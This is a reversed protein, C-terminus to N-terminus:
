NCSLFRLQLRSSHGALGGAGHYIYQGSLGAAPAPYLQDDHSDRRPLQQFEVIQNNWATGFHGYFHPYKEKLKPYGHTPLMEGHTYINIGKGASQILLQELDILDHGSIVIAKGKKAGLPVKTPVPHGYRSTNGADLLEMARLNMEGCKLVMGLMAELGLKKDMVAVLGKRSSVSLSQDDEQGLLQAHHTYASIGKLGFQLVHKLSLVDPEIGGTDSKLGVESGQKILDDLGSAPRFTLAAGSM